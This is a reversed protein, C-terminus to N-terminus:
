NNEKGSSINSQHSIDSMTIEEQAVTFTWTTDEWWKKAM